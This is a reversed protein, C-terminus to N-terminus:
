ADAHHCSDIKPLLLSAVSVDSKLGFDQGAYQVWLYKKPRQPPLLQSIKPFEPGPPSPVEKGDVSYVIDALLLWVLDPDICSLGLLANTAAQQLMQSGCAFGVCSGAIQKLVAELARATKRDRAIIEIMKFFAEQIKFLSGEAMDAQDTSKSHRRFPLLLSKETQFEARISGAGMSLLRFFHSGDTKFRRIFFDGGCVLVLHSIVGMCRVAVQSKKHKLCVLLYPWIKNMAPLLRNGDNVADVSNISDQLTYFSFQKAVWEIGERSEAENRLAEEIMALTAMGNEVLDLSILCEEQENSGLLPISATLCSGVVSGVSQQYRKRDDLKLLVQEWHELSADGKSSGGKSDENFDTNLSIDTDRYSSGSSISSSVVSFGSLLKENREKLLQIESKIHSKYELSEQTISHTEQRSAKVIEDLAKLIPVTLDPHQHRALVELELSISHTPEVLLPLIDHAAGISSLVAALINPAHPYLTVHRLQRCLSDIIYDANAVVLDKVSLYGASESLMRLAVDAASCIHYNSCTLKELLLYLSSYLFGSTEFSTDLSIGFVGFGELIVQQLMSTDHFFHWPLQQNTSGQRLGPSSFDIPLDWIESSLYEHLIIGVCEIVHQNMGTGQDMEWKQLPHPIHKSSNNKLDSMSKDSTVAMRGMSREQPRNTSKFFSFYTDTSRNSAGYIMENLVCVATGAARLVQGSEPRDYWTCWDEGRYDKLRLESITHRLSELPIEILISLSLTDTCGSVASLAALRLIAALLEYLKHGGAHTFWPPMHPLRGNLTLDMLHKGLEPRESHLIQIGSSNVSSKSQSDRYEKTTIDSSLESIAPLYGVSQIKHHVLQDIPGTFASTHSLSQRMVELFHSVAAPSHFLHSSVGEPGAFYMASLLRRAHILAVTEDGTFISKPLRDILRNFVENLENGQMFRGDSLFLVLFKQATSAVSEWDDCALAFLCELLMPKIRKLTNNCSILLAGAAEAIGHRVVKAPHACLTPFTTSLLGDVRKATEELWKKDRDVRFNSGKAGKGDKQEEVVKETNQQLEKHDLAHDPVENAEQLVKQAQTQASLYRLADLTSEASQPKRAFPGSIAENYVDAVGEELQTTNNQDGFSVVLFEALGKIAQEIAGISGAAGSTVQFSDATISKSMRLCKALGSVIGPLFFALADATGVKSILVRLTSISDTRLKGSGRHGRSAEAEAIQLLLSLLHGVAASADESQLFAVLCEGNSFAETQLDSLFSDKNQFPLETNSFFFPSSPILKCTCAKGLCPKLGLLVERLCKVIGHRFEESAESPSLLAGSTLKRIIMSMQDITTLTCRRLLEELCLLVGEAVSDSIMFLTGDRRSSNVSDMDKTSRCAISDDLLLLLPLLIYELCAQLGLPPAERVYATLSHLLQPRNHGPERLLFLEICLPKLQSFVKSRVDDENENPKRDGYKRKEESREM